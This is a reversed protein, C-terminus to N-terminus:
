WKTQNLCDVEILEGADLIRVLLTNEQISSWSYGREKGIAIGANGHRQVITGEYSKDLLIALQGDELDKMQVKKPDEQTLLKVGM